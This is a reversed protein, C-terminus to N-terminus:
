FDGEKTLDEIDTMRSPLLCPTAMLRPEVVKAIVVLRDISSNAQRSPM